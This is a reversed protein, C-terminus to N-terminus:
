LTIRKGDYATEIEVQEIRSLVDENMHTAILRKCSLEDRHSLLSQYNLHFKMIKDFFYAECIFLDASAAAEILTPTWETDGSYTIIRGELEVRLAYSPSGSFHVVPFGTVILNGIQRPERASLEVFNIDFRQNIGSSGPFFMEMASHVREQLGPPGAITLPRTRKSILQADLLFFPIGGFHDGHFHTILICGIENPRVGAGKFAILSSAGCDILIHDSAAKVSICTQFRGGSGFTDGSGIFQVEVQSSAM